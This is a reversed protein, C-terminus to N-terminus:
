AFGFSPLPLTTDNGGNFFAGSFSGDDPHLFSDFLGGQGVTEGNYIQSVPAASGLNLPANSGSGTGSFLGVVGRAISAVANTAGALSNAVNQGAGLIGSAQQAATGVKNAASVLKYAVFGGVAILAWETKSM